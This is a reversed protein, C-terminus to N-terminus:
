SQNKGDDTLPADAIKASTGKNKPNKWELSVINQVDM